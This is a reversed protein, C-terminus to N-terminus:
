RERKRNRESEGIDRDTETQTETEIERGGDRDRDRDVERGWERDRDGRKWMKMRGKMTERCYLAKCLMKGMSM